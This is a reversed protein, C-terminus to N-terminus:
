TEIRGLILPCRAALLAGIMRWMVAVSGGGSMARLGTGRLAVIM